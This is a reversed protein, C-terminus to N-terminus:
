EEDDPILRRRIAVACKAPSLQEYVDAGEEIESFVDESEFLSVAENLEMSYLEAFAHLIREKLCAVDSDTPLPLIGREKSEPIATFVKRIPEDVDSSTCGVGIALGEENPTLMIVITKGEYKTM